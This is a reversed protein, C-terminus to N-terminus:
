FKVEVSYDIKQGLMSKLRNAARGSRKMEGGRKGSNNNRFNQRRKEGGKNAEPTLSNFEILVNEDANSCIAYPNESSKILPIEFEYVLQNGSFGTRFNINVDNDIGLNELIENKTNIIQIEGTANLEKTMKATLNKKLDTKTKNQVDTRRLPRFNNSKIKMGFSLAEDSEPKIWIILGNKLLQRANIPGEQIFCIYMKDKYHSIGYSFNQDTVSKLSKGWENHKGDITVPKNLRTSKLNVSSCGVTVFILLAFLNLKYAISFIKNIELKSTQLQTM